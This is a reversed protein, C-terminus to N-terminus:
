QDDEYFYGREFAGHTARKKEMLALIQGKSYGYEKAIALAVEILDALESAREHKTSAAIFESHEEILKEALAQKLHQGMLNRIRPRRGEKEIMEPVLDRVLKRKRRFDTQDANRKSRNCVFCLAQLNDPANVDILKGDKIVRGHKDAKSRPVIHDIDIPRLAAPIGCLQCKGHAQKLVQYRVSAQGLSSHETSQKRAIWEEIKADYFSIAEHLESHTEPMNLLRFVAGRREYSIIGHKTLTM